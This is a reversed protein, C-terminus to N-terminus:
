AIFHVERLLKVALQALMHPTKIEVLYKPSWCKESQGKQPRNTLVCEAERAM